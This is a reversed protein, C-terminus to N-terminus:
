AAARSPEIAVIKLRLQGGPTEILATEGRRRGLVARGVPSAASIRGATLDTEFTGVIEYTVRAGTDVNRLRVREGLDVVDNGDDPEAVHASALRDELQAIRTELRAKQERAAHYEPSEALDAGATAAQRLEAAAEHRGATRLRDLEAELRALGAPTILTEHM